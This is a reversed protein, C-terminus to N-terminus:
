CACHESARLFPRATRATSNSTTRSAAGAGGSTKTSVSRAASQSPPASPNSAPPPKAAAPQSPPLPLSQREGPSKPLPPTPTNQTRTPPEGPRTIELAVPPKRDLREGRRRCRQHARGPSSATVLAFLSVHLSSARVVVLLAFGMPQYASTLRHYTFMCAPLRCWLQSDADPVSPM